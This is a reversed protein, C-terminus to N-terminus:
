LALRTMCSEMEIEREREVSLGVWIGGNLSSFFGKLGGEKDGESIM